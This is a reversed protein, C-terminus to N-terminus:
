LESELSAYGRRKFANPNYTHFPMYGAGAYDRAYCALAYLALDHRKFRRGSPLLVVQMGQQACVETMDVSLLTTDATYATTDCTLPTCITTM